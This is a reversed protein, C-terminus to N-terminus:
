AAGKLLLYPDYELAQFLHQIRSAGQTWHSARRVEPTLKALERMVGLKRFDLKVFAFHLIDGQTVSWGYIQSPDRLECAVLLKSDAVLATILRHHARYYTDTMIMPDRQQATRLYSKLWSSYMFPLDQETGHRVRLVSTEHVFIM